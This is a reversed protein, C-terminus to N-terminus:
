EIFTTRAATAEQDAEEPPADGNAADEVELVELEDGGAMDVDQLAEDVAAQFGEIRVEPEAM